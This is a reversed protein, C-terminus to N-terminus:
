PNDEPEIVMWHVGPTLEVPPDDHKHEEYYALGEDTWDTLKSDKTAPHEPPWLKVVQIYM